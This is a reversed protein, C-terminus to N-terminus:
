LMSKPGDRRHAQRCGPRLAPSGRAGARSPRGQQEFRSLRAHVAQGAKGEQRPSPRRHGIMTTEAARSQAHRQWRM